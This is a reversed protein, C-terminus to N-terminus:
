SRQETGATVPARLVPSAVPATSAVPAILVPSAIHAILALLQRAVIDMELLMQSQTAISAQLKLPCNCSSRIHGQKYCILCIPLQKTPEEGISLIRSTYSVRVNAIRQRSAWLPDLLLQLTSKCDWYWHKYFDLLVLGGTARQTNCMHACPLGM